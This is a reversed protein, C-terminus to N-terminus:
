GSGREEAGGRHETYRRGNQYLPAVFISTVELLGRHANPHPLQLSPHCLDQSVDPLLLGILVSTDIGAKTM